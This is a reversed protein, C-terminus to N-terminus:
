TSGASSGLPICPFFGAAFFAASFVPSYDAFGDENICSERSGGRGPPEERKMGHMAPSVGASAESKAIAGSSRRM